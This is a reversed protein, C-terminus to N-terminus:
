HYHTCEEQNCRNTSESWHAFAQDGEGDHTNSMRRSIHGSSHDNNIAFYADEAPDYTYQDEAFHAETIQKQQWPRKYQQSSSPQQASSDPPRSGHRFYQYMGFWSDKKIKLQNIFEVISSGSPSLSLQLSEDFRHFAMLLADSTIYDVQQALKLV